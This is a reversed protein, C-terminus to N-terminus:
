ATTRMPQPPRARSTPITTNREILKILVGGATQMDMCSLPWMWFCIPALGHVQSSGESILGAAQAAASHAVAEDPNISRKLEMGRLDDLVQGSGQPHANREGAEKRNSGYDIATATPEDNVICLINTGSINGGM